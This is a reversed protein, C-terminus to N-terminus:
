RSLLYQKLLTRDASAMRSFRVGLGPPYHPKPKRHAPNVWGVTGKCAIWPNDPRPPTLLLELQISTGPAITEKCAIFIGGGSIDFGNATFCHEGTLVRVPPRCRLRLEGLGVLFHDALELFRKRDLPRTAV